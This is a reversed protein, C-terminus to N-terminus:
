LVALWHHLRRDHRRHGNANSLDEEFRRSFAISDGAANQRCCRCCLCLLLFCSQADDESTAKTTTAATAIAIPSPLLLLLLLPLIHAGAEVALCRRSGTREPRPDIGKAM